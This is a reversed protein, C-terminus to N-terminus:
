DAYQRVSRRRRTPLFVAAPSLLCVQVFWCGVRQRVYVTGSDERVDEREDTQMASYYAIWTALVVHHNQRNVTNKHVSCVM